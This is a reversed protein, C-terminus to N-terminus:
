EEKIIKEVKREGNEYRIDLIYMGPIFSSMDITNPSKASYVNKGCIDRLTVMTNEPAQVNLMDKVPNPFIKTDDVGAIGISSPAEEKKSIAWWNLRVGGRKFGIRIKQKGESFIGKCFQTNWIGIGKKEFHLTTIETENVSVYIESEDEYEASLRFYVNYEGAEPIDVNYDVWYGVNMDCINIDGSVDTTKEMSIRNMRIYHESQIQQETTFYFNDDYSSMHVYVEGLEKLVGENRPDLLQMYPHGEGSREKFWAYRFIDPDTELYDLTEIMFKKQSSPSTNNDWACFETLWIPKGFKKFKEVNSRIAGASSMYFHVAIHDVRCDKCAAFFDDYWRVPDQYPPDPSYNVAPGVIILGYEDAIEEIDAWKEAAETPTLNAQKIFNPENFGLIYKVEPHIKLLNRINEKDIGSWAMPVFEFDYLIFATDNGTRTHGWNYGWSVGLSLAQVDETMLSNYCLGRKFSRTQAQSFAIISLGILVIIIHKFRM